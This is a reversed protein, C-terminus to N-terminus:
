ILQAQGPQSKLTKIIEALLEPFEETRMDELTYHGRGPLEIIKGGLSTHFIKLADKGVRQENDATFMIIENVRSKITEDVKYDYFRKRYQDTHETVKWPAVLVLKNIKRKSEGLWRILFSSGCSHGILITYETVSCKEFEKKFAEYNPHWPKPILPVETKIGLSTLKKRIWPMWHKAYERTKEESSDSPCGHIIICNNKNTKMNVSRTPSPDNITLVSQRIFWIKAKSVFAKAPLLERFLVKAIALYYM